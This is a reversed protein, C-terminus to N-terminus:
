GANAVLGVEAVSALGHHRPVVRVRYGFPGPAALLV